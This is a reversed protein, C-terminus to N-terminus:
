AHVESSNTAGKSERRSLEEYQEIQGGTFAGMEQGELKARYWQVTLALAQKLRLRPQWGLREAAKSWDLKLYSAEHPQPELLSKCQGDLPIPRFKFPL